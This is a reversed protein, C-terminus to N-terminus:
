FSSDPNGVRFLPLGSEYVYRVVQLRDDMWAKCNYKNFVHTKFLREKLCVDKEDNGDERMHLSFSKGFHINLWKETDERYQEKRGSFFFIKHSNDHLLKAMDVVHQNPKDLLCSSADYPNRHSLDCMSGDLDIIACNPLGEILQVPEPEQLKTFIEERCVYLKHQKGGSAKWWKNIVEPGVRASGTRKSDREIAEEKEVYFSEEFVKIAKGTSKALNCYDDFTRKSLNLNDVIVNKGSRLAQLVIFERTSKILKEYDNTFVSQNMMERLSDNNVRVWNSPDKAVHQIAWTSKGSSPIGCLIILNLM